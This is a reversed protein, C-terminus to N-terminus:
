VPSKGSSHLGHHGSGQNWQASGDALVLREPHCPDDLCCSDVIGFFAQCRSGRLPGQICFLCCLNSLLLATDASTKSCSHLPPCSQVKVATQLSNQCHWELHRCADAIAASISRSCRPPLAKCLMKLCSLAIWESQSICQLHGGRDSLTRLLSDIGCWAMCTSNCVSLMSPNRYFMQVAPAASCTNQERLKGQGTSGFGLACGRRALKM